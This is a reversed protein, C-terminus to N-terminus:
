ILSPVNLSPVALDFVAPRFTLIVAQRHEHGVQDATLDGDDDRRTFDDRARRRRARDTGVCQGLLQAVGPNQKWLGNYFIEKFEHLTMM